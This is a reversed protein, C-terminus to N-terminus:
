GFFHWELAMCISHYIPLHLEQIEVVNDAPVRIAVDVWPLIKGGSRGTLGITTMGLAKATIFANLVNMSNGSTSIGLLADGQRGLGQVQQAFIMHGHIDNAIATVLAHHSSLSVAALGGQLRSAIEAGLEGGVERLRSAQTEPIPRPLIFGKMLEGVIYEGDSASGGNGCILLKGGSEYVAILTNIAQVLDL